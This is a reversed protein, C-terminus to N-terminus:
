VCRRSVLLASCGDAYKATVDKVCLCLNVYQVCIEFKSRWMVVLVPLHRGCVCIRVVERTGECVWDVTLVCLSPQYAHM